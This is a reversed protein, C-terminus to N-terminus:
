GDEVLRILCRECYDEEDDGSCLCCNENDEMILWECRFSNCTLCTPEETTDSLEVLKSIIKYDEESM